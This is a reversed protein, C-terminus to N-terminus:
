GVRWAMHVESLPKTILGRSGPIVVSAGLCVALGYGMPTEVLCVDGRRAQLVPIPEGLRATAGAAVGGCDAIYALASRKDWYHKALDATWNSDTLADVCAAAFTCCDNSGWRFPM